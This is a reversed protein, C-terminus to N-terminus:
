TKQYPKVLARNAVHDAFDLQKTYISWKSEGGHELKSSCLRSQPLRDGPKNRYEICKGKDLLESLPAGSMTYNNFMYKKGNPANEFKFKERNKMRSSEIPRQLRNLIATYHAVSASRNHVPRHPQQRKKIVFEKQIRKKEALKYESPKQEIKKKETNSNRVAWYEREVGPENNRPSVLPSTVKSWKYSQEQVHNTIYGFHDDPPLSLEVVKPPFIQKIIGNEVGEQLVLNGMEDIFRRPVATLHVNGTPPYQM